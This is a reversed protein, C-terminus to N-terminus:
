PRSATATPTPEVTPQATPTATPEAGPAGPTGPGGPLGPMGAGGGTDSGGVPLHLRALLAGLPWNDNSLTIIMIHVPMGSGCGPEAAPAYSTNTACGGSADAAVGSFPWPGPDALATGACLTAGALAGAGLVTLNRLYKKM